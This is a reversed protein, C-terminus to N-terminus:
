LQKHWYIHQSSNAKATRCRDKKENQQTWESNILKKNRGDFKAMDRVQTGDRKDM